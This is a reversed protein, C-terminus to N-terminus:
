CFSMDLQRLAVHRQGLRLSNGLLAEVGQDSGDFAVDCAVISTGLSLRALDIFAVSRGNLGILGPSIRSSSSSALPHLGAPLPFEWVDELHSQILAEFDWWALKDLDYRLM